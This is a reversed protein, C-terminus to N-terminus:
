QHSLLREFADEIEEDTLDRGHEHAEVLTRKNEALQRDLQEIAQDNEGLRETLQERVMQLEAIRNKAQAVALKDQVRGLEGTKRDWLWGAGLLVAIAGVLAWGWKKLWTWM